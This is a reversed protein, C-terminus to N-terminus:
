ATGDAPRFTGNWFPCGNTDRFEMNLTGDPNYQYEIFMATPGAMPLTHSYRRAGHKTAERIWEGIEAPISSCIASGRLKETIMSALLDLEAASADATTIM